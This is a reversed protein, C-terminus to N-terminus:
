PRRSGGEEMRFRAGGGDFTVAPLVVMNAVMYFGGDGSSNSGRYVIM